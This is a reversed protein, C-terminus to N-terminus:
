QGMLLRYLKKSWGTKLIMYSFDKNEAPLEIMRKKSYASVYQNENIKKWQYKKQALVDGLYKQFCSDCSAKILESRCKGSQRDFQYTFSSVVGNTAKVTMTITSDDRSFVPKEFGPPLTYGELKRLVQEPSKDIFNQADASSSYVLLFILLAKKM